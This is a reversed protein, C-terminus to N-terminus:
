MNTRENSAILKLQIIALTAKAAGVLFLSIVGAMLINKM